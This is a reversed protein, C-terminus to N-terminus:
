TLIKLAFRSLQLASVRGSLSFAQDSWTHEKEPTSFVVRIHPRPQKAKRSSSKVEMQFVSFHDWLIQFFHQDATCSFATEPMKTHFVAFCCVFDRVMKRHIYNETVVSYDVLFTNQDVLHQQWNSSIEVQLTEALPRDNCCIPFAKALM